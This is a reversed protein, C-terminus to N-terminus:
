GEFAMALNAFSLERALSLLFKGFKRISINWISQLSLSSPSSSLSLSLSHSKCVQAAPPQRELLSSFFFLPALPPPTSMPFCLPFDLFLPRTTPLARSLLFIPPPFVFWPLFASSAPDLCVVSIPPGFLVCLITSIFSRSSSMFITLKKRTKIFFFLSLSLTHLM